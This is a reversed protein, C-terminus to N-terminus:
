RFTTDPIPGNVVTNTFLIRTFDGGTQHLEVRQVSERTDSFEITIDHLIERVTSRRPILTFTLPSAAALSIDYEKTLWKQDFSTWALLQTAVINMIPDNQLQFQKRTGTDGDWRVGQKGNLAFGDTVPTLYEWRLKDRTKFMFRGTSVVPHNFMSLHMEQVFDSSITGVNRSSQEIKALLTGMDRSTALAKPPLSLLCVLASFILIAPRM